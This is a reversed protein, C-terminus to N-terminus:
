TYLELTNDIVLALSKRTVWLTCDAGFFFFLYLRFVRLQTAM